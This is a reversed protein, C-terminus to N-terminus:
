VGIDEDELEEDSLAAPAASATPVYDNLIRPQLAPFKVSETPRRSNIKCSELSEIERVIEDQDLDYFSVVNGLGYSIQGTTGGSTNATMDPPGWALRAYADIGDQACARPDFATENSSILGTVGSMRSSTIDPTGANLHDAILDKERQTQQVKSISSTSSLNALLEKIKDKSEVNLHRGPREGTTMSLLFGPDSINSVQDSINSVEDSINSMETKSLCDSRKPAHEDWAVYGTTRTLAENSGMQPSTATQRIEAGCHMNSECAGQVPGRTEDRGLKTKTSRATSPNPSLIVDCEDPGTAPLVPEGTGHVRAQNARPDHTKDSGMTENSGMGPM